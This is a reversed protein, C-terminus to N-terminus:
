WCVRTARTRTEGAPFHIARIDEGNLHVTLRDNFTIIPLADEPAPPTPKGFKKIAAKVRDRADTEWKPAGRPKRKAEETLASTEEHVVVHPPASPDTATPPTTEM